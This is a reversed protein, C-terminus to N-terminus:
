TFLGAEVYSFIRFDGFNKRDVTVYIDVDGTAIGTKGKVASVGAVKGFQSFFYGLHDDTIFLPVGHLTM